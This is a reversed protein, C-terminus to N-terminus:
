SDWPGVITFASKPQSFSCGLESKSHLFLVFLLEEVFGM